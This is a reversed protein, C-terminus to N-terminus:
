KKIKKRAKKEVEKAKETIKTLYKVMLFIVFAIILFDILSGLFAGVGFNATGFTVTINRWGGSIEFIDIIPMIMNNVLSSVLDKAALGVIFAVAMAVVNYEEIFKKFDEMFAM